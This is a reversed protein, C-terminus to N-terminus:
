WVPHGRLRTRLHHVQWLLVQSEAIAQRSQEIQCRVECASSRAQKCLTRCEDRQTQVAQKQPETTDM